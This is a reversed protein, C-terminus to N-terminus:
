FNQVKLAGMWMFHKFSKNCVIERQQVLINKKKKKFFLLIINLTWTEKRKLYKGPFNGATIKPCTSDAKIFVLAVLAIVISKLIIEM